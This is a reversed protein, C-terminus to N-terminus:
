INDNNYQADISVSSYFFFDDHCASIEVQLALVLTSTSTNLKSM